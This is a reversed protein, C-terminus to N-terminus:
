RREGGAQQAPTRGPDVAPPIVRQIIPVALAYAQEICADALRHPDYRVRIAPARTVQRRRHLQAM